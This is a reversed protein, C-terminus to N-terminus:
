KNQNPKKWLCVGKHVVLNLNHCACTFHVGFEATSMASKFNTANDTTISTIRYYEIGSRQLEYSIYKRISEATHTGKFRRFGILLPINEYLNSMVHATLCIYSQGRSNSWMDSTLSVYNIKSMVKLLDQRYSLYMQELKSRVTKTCPGKYSENFAIQLFHQM